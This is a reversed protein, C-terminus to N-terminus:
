ISEPLNSTLTRLHSIDVHVYRQTTLINKHGLMEQLVRINATTGLNTAMTHRIRHAGIRIGHEKYLRQYFGSVQECKM